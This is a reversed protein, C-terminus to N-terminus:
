VCYIKADYHDESIAVIRSYEDENILKMSLLIRLMNVSYVFSANNKDTKM